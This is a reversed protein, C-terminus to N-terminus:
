WLLLLTYDSTGKTTQLYISNILPENYIIRETRGAKVSILSAAPLVSPINSPNDSINYAIQITQKGENFLIWGKVYKTTLKMLNYTNANFDTTATGTYVTHMGKDRQVSLISLIQDISKQQNSITVSNQQNITILTNLSQVIDDLLTISTLDTEVIDTVKPPPPAPSSVAPRPITAQSLKKENDM